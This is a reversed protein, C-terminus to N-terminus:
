SNTDDDVLYLDRPLNVRYCLWCLYKFPIMERGTKRVLVRRPIVVQGTAPRTWSCSPWNSRLIRDCTRRLGPAAWRGM